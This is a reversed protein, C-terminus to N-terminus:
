HKQGLRQQFEMYMRVLQALSDAGMKEMVRSRHVEVTRESVHMEDAMKGNACGSALLEMVERESPTLSDIRERIGDFEALTQRNQRDYALARRVSTLLESASFPKLLYNFAGQRMAAVADPIRLNITVFIVPIIAGRRNLETQLQLGSMGPMFIDLVLCGAQDIDFHDLFEAASGFPECELGISNALAMILSRGIEDDEVVYVIPTPQSM